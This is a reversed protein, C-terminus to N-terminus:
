ERVIGYEHLKRRVTHRDCGFTRALRSINPDRGYEAELEERAIQRRERKGEPIGGGDQEPDTKAAPEKERRGDLLDDAAALLIATRLREEEGIRETQSPRGLVWSGDLGLERALLNTFSIYRGLRLKTPEGEAPPEATVRQLSEALLEIAEFDIPM